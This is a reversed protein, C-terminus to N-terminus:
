MLDLFKYAMLVAALEKATSYKKTYVTGTSRIADNMIFDENGIRGFSFIGYGYGKDRGAASPIHETYINLLLRIEDPTLRRGYRLKGKSLLIAVAGTIIPTAMSTGSLTAYGGDLYTSYIDIGAASIEAAKGRSNFDAINKNIDVASVAVTEPFNAPYGITNEGMGGENGAACILSIGREHVKSILAKYQPSTASSSFSMNIVDVGKDILWNMSKEIAPYSTKGDKGFAKAVYLDAKPAVGVVGVGNKEAAVIGCIHTGHGNDDEFDDSNKGYFNAGDKIRGKLEIHDSDVGTGIIGVKIDEGMTEHWELPAGVMKVGYDIIESNEESTVNIVKCDSIKFESM